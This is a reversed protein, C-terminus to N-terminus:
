RGDANGSSVAAPVPGHDPGRVEPRLWNAAACNPPIACSPRPRKKDGRLYAALSGQYVGLAYLFGSTTHARAAIYFERYMQLAIRTTAPDKSPDVTAAFAADIVIGDPVCSVRVADKVSQYDVAAMEAFAADVM